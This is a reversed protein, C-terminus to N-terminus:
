LTEEAILYIPRSKVEEYILGLYQAIIALLVLSFGLSLIGVITGFGAFPVGYLIWFFSSIITALLSVLSLVMGAAALLTLPATTHSLIAYTAWSIVKRLKIQEYKSEGAFRNAREIEITATKFGTWAILGRLFRHKERLSRVALYTNRSMLRFDSVNRPIMDRTLQNAIRYFAHSLIRRIFPVQTKKVVKAVVQDYGEEWKLLFAEVVNPDDQLDSAMLIVADSETEDLGMTFAADLSFTRSM